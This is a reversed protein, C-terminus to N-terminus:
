FYDIKDLFHFNSLFTVVFIVSNSLQRMERAGLIFASIILTAATVVYLAPLIRRARREYFHSISFRNKQLDHRILSTILYGSIVFFIDVGIYGAPAGPLGAHFWIVAIVAIARLGDIEPRYTHINPNMWSPVYKM